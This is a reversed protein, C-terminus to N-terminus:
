PRGGNHDISAQVGAALQADDLLMDHAEKSTDKELEKSTDKELEKSTDKELEKSTDKELEKSTDKELEKSTSDCESIDIAFNVLKSTKPHPKKIIKYQINLMKQENSKFLTEIHSYKEKEIYYSIQNVIGITIKNYTKYKAIKILIGHQIADQDNIPEVAKTSTISTSKQEPLDFEVTQIKDYDNIPYTEDYLEIHIRLESIDHDYIGTHELQFQHNYKDYLINHVYLQLIHGYDSPYKIDDFMPKYNRLSDQKLFDNFQCITLIDKLVFAAIQLQRSLEETSSQFSYRDNNPMIEILKNFAETDCYMQNKFLILLNYLSIDDLDELQIFTLFKDFLEIYEKEQEKMKTSSPYKFRQVRSIFRKTSCARISKHIDKLLKDSIEIRYNTLQEWLEHDYEGLISDLTTNNEPSYSNYRNYDDYGCLVTGKKQNARSVRGFIQSTIACTDLMGSTIINYELLPDDYGQLQHPNTAIVCYSLDRGAQNLTAFGFLKLIFEDESLSRLFSIDVIEKKTMPTIKILENIFNIEYQKITYNVNSSRQVIHKIKQIIFTKTWSRDFLKDDSSKYNMLSVGILEEEEEEEEEEEKYHVSNADINCGIDLIANYFTNITKLLFDSPILLLSQIREKIFREAIIFSEQANIKSEQDIDLKDEKSSSSQQYALYADRINYGPDNTDEKQMRDSFMIRRIQLPLTRLVNANIKRSKFPHDKFEKNKCIINKAVRETSIVELFKNNMIFRIYEILSTPLTAGLLCIKLKNTPWAEALNLLKRFYYLYIGASGNNNAEALLSDFEDLAIVIIKGSSIYTDANEELYIITPIFHYFDSAQKSFNHLSGTIQNNLKVKREGNKKKKRNKNDLVLRQSSKSASKTSKKSANEKTNQKGLKYEKEQGVYQVLGKTSISVPMKKGDSANATFQEVVSSSPAFYFLKYNSDLTSFATTKGCGTPGSMIICYKDDQQLANLLETQLPTYQYKNNNKITDDLEM